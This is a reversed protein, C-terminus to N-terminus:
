APLDRIRRAPVGAYVGNPECDKVVVAGAGVICGSGVTVGALVVAGAGVWTGSGITIPLAINEGLRMGPGGIEHTTSLLKADSGLSSNRELTVKGECDLFARVNVYCGESVKLHRGLIVVRSAIKAGRGIDYGLARLGIRRLGFSVIPLSLVSSCIEDPSLDKHRLWLYLRRVIERV